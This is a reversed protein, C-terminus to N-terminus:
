HLGYKILMIPIVVAGSVVIWVFLIIDSTVAFRQIKPYRSPRLKPYKPGASQTTPEVPVEAGTPDGDVGPHDRYVAPFPTLNSCILYWFVAIFLLALLTVALRWTDGLITDAPIIM